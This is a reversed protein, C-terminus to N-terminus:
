PLTAKTYGAPLEFMKDVIKTEYIDSVEYTVEEIEWRLAIGLQDDTWLHAPEGHQNVLLWRTAQRGGVNERAFMQCRAPSQSNPCPSGNSLRPMYTSVQKEGIDVYQKLHPFWQWGKRESVIYVTVWPGFEVRLRGNSLYLQGNQGSPQTFPATIRIDGTVATESIAARHCAVFSLALCLLLSLKRM